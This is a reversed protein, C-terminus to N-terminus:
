SAEFVAAMAKPTLKRDAAADATASNYWSQLLVTIQERDAPTMSKEMYMDAASKYDSRKAIKPQAQIKDFLGRLSIEGGGMGASGFNSKPQMWIENASAATLYDGLGTAEFGMSHAIVFKGSKRFKKLATGIEEAQAISLNANGLRMIVGKVRSDREAADLGLVIDMVTVPRKGFISGSASDATPRRLDLALVMNSPLGDGMILGIVILAVFVLVILFAFRAIANLTGAAISRCWRLFSIM